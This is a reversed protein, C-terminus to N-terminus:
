ACLVISDPFNTYYISMVEGKRVSVIIVVLDQIVMTSPPLMSSAVLFCVKSEFLFFFRCHCLLPPPTVIFDFGM